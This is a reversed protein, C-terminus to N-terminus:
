ILGHALLDQIDVLGIPRKGEDIVIVQDVKTDKMIRAIQQALDVAKVAQPNLSMVNVIPSTLFDVGTELCRRLNGDTFVGILKGGDDVIAAAGPRGKTATIQHIAEKVLVSRSIVCHADGTRMIEGVTMLSRGLEGGPHYRAFEERTFGKLQVVTMAIADGVALMVTTTSTPALGLPGAEDIKGLSVCVDSYRGLSSDKSATISIIKAGIGKVIPILRLVEPTEGSNSFIMVIDEATCRGLDGHVADAPHLFFAPVGISALTAAFKMSVFGAKGMGSVMVRTSGPRNLILSVASDFQDDLLGGVKLISNAESELISQGYRRPSENKM